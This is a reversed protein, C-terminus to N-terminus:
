ICVTKMNTCILYRICLYTQSQARFCVTLFRLAMQNNNCSWLYCQTKVKFYLDNWTCIQFYSSIDQTIHFLEYLCLWVTVKVNIIVCNTCPVHWCTLKSTHLPWYVWMVTCTAWWCREGHCTDAQLASQRMSNFVYLWDSLYINVCTM